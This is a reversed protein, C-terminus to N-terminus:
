LLPLGFDRHRAVSDREIGSTRLSELTDAGPEFRDM